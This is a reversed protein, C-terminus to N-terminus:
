QTPPSLTVSGINKEMVLLRKLLVEANANKALRMCGVQANVYNKLNLNLRNNSLQPLLYKYRKYKTIIQITFDSLKIKTETSTKISKVKLYTADPTQLLDKQKLQMLDSFRLGTYCGFILIDKTKQLYIPLINEFEIDERMFALQHQELIVIPISENRVYFEKHIEGTYISKKRNLYIFFTRIVKFHAGVYNDFCGKGYLYDAYKRYFRNWYAHESKVTRGSVRVISKLHISFSSAESFKLLENKVLIYHQVTGPKIRSGNSKSRKGSKSEAIFTDFLKFFNLEKQM